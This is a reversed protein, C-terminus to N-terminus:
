RVALVQGYRQLSGPQLKLRSSGHGHIKDQQVRKKKDHDKKARRKRKTVSRQVNERNKHGKKNRSNQAVVGAASGTPKKKGNDVHEENFFQQKKSYENKKHIKHKSPANLAAYDEDIDEKDKRGNSNKKKRQQLTRKEGGDSNARENNHASVAGKRVNNKSSSGVEPDVARGGGGGDDGYDESPRVPKRIKKRKKIRNHQKPRPGDDILEVDGAPPRKETGPIRSAESTKRSPNSMYEYTNPTEYPQAYGQDQQAYGQQQEERSRRAKGMGYASSDPLSRHGYGYASSPSGNGYYSKAHDGSEYYRNYQSPAETTFYMIPSVTMCHLRPSLYLLAACCALLSRLM